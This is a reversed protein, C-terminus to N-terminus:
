LMSRILEITREVSHGDCAGAHYQRLYESHDDWEARALCGALQDERMCYNNSYMDPWKCYMGRARMFSRYDKAFLVIPIRLLMADFMISSYDTILTDAKLLYPTSPVKSSATEINPMRSRPFDGTVMHPKAILKEGKPLTRSIVRWDPKWNGARFTPAYLHVRNENKQKENTFYDDTRPMGLPIVMDKSIGCYGAVIPIMDESSAIAYTIAKPNHFYPRPQNLGFLKGAGMGHGIFICKGPSDNPLEDAVMLSYKGSHLDKVPFNSFEKEGDYADWVAKLNEARDLPRNSVFIVTGMNLHRAQRAKRATKWSSSSVMM